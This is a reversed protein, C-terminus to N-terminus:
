KSCEIDRLENTYREASDYYIESVMDKFEDDSLGLKELTGCFKVFSILDSAM